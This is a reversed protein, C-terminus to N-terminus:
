KAKTDQYLLNGTQSSLQTQPVQSIGLAKNDSLAKFLTQVMTKDVM